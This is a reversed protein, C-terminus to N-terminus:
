SMLPVELRKRLVNGSWPLVNHGKRQQGLNDCVTEGVYRRLQQVGPIDPQQHQIKVIGDHGVGSVNGRRLHRRPQVPHLLRVDGHADDGVAVFVPHGTEAPLMTQVADGVRFLWKGLADPLTQRFIVDRCLVGRQHAILDVGIGKARVADAHGGNQDAGDVIVIEPQLCTM